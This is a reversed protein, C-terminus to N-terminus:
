GGARLGKATVSILANGHVELGTLANTSDEGTVRLFYRKDSGVTVAIDLLQIAHLADYHGTTVSTDITSDIQNPTEVGSQWEWLSLAPKTAPLGVHGGGGKVWVTVSTIIDGRVVDLDLEVATTGVGIAQIAAGCIQEAWDSESSAPVRWGNRVIREVAVDHEIYTSGSMVLNGTMTSGSKSVKAGLMDIIIELLDRLTGASAVSYGSFGILSTGDPDGPAAGQSDLSAGTTPVTGSEVLYTAIAVIRDFQPLFSNAWFTSTGDGNQAAKVTPWARTGVLTYEAM